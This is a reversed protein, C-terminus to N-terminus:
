RPVPHVYRTGTGQQNWFRAPEGLRPGHIRRKACGADSRSSVCLCALPFRRSENPSKPISITTVASIRRCPVPVVPPESVGIHMPTFEAWRLCLKPHTSISHNVTSFPRSGPQRFTSPASEPAVRDRRDGEIARSRVQGGLNGDRDDGVFAVRGILEFAPEGFADIYAAIRNDALLDLGEKALMLSTGHDHGIADDATRVLFTDVVGFAVGARVARMPRAAVAKGM